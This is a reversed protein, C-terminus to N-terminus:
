VSKILLKNQTIEQLLASQLALLTVTVFLKSIRKKMYFTLHTRLLRGTSRIRLLIFRIWLGHGKVTWM